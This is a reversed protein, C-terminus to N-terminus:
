DSGSGGVVPEAALLARVVARVAVSALAIDQQAGNASQVRFRELTGRAPGLSAERRQLWTRAAAAGDLDPGAQLAVAGAGSLARQLDDDLAHLLWAEYRGYRAWARLALHVGELGLAAGLGERVAAADAVSRSATRAVEAVAGADAGARLRALAARAADVLGPGGVPGAGPPGAAPPPPQRGPGGVPEQANLVPANLVSALAVAVPSDGAVTEGVPLRRGASLYWRTLKAVAASWAHRLEAETEAAAARAARDVLAAVAAAGSVERALWYARAVEALSGGTECALEHAWAPGMRSVVENALMSSLLQAYLPHVPVLDGFREGLEGPFYSTVAGALTPEGVLDSAQVARALESRAYATLVALEPRSLGAGAAHRRDLEEDDPLDEVDSSLLGARELDDQLARYVPLREASEGVALDLAVVGSEVDALVAASVEDALEALLGDREGPVLRGDEEARRALIKLNVERDSMAVGAANDVFDTNVRGGRRSYRVRARQTVALNAGEAVVRARLEDATVRVDDNARDDVEVDNEGPAKVFTGVGGFFLMDVPARLVVRVLEDPSMTGPRTGLAAAAEGSLELQRDRRSYVAAGPSACSLDYDAWSSSPLEFLRRRQAYAVAPDPSPDVFVHRHDFAAVLLVSSSQLLGNGFVDGSMDGVGVVRVPDTGPDMGLARFHRKVAVWAGRATIGLRKHDYGHSGGSAFADGLWFGRAESVENALDSFSATGKDPAVVLYPDDGDGRAVGPAAVVAGREINDTVDLMAEIFARYAGRGGLAGPDGPRLAFGGKAGTPVILSNKKVQARALGLVEPRLDQARESWRIGGRAVLGFRLHVAEFWPSWVFTEAVPRPSPLFGVRESALKVAITGRGLGWSTRTTARVMDALEALVEYDDLDPVAALAEELALGAAHPRSVAAGPAPRGALAATVAGAVSPFAVLAEGMATAREASRPGGVMRRYAQYAALLNVDSWTLGASVVLANLAGAEARGSLVADVAEVLRAGLGGTGPPDDGTEARVGIDDVFATRKADAGVAVDFHWPVAEVVALGFSELVPLLASLEARQWAARRLRFAGAPGPRGSVVRLSYPAPPGSAGHPGPVPPEGHELLPLLRYLEVWDISAEQPATQEAYGPPVSRLFAEGHKGADSGPRAGLQGVVERAWDQPVPM